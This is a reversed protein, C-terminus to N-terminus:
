KVFKLSSPSRLLIDQGNHILPSDRKIQLEIKDTLFIIM